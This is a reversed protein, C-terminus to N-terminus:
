SYDIPAYVVDPYDGGNDVQYWTSETYKIPFGWITNPRERWIPLTFDPTPPSTIPEEPLSQTIPMALVVPVIGIIKLFDRRSIM